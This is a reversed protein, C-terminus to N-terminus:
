KAFDKIRQEEKLSCILVRGDREVVICDELGELVVSSAKPAHVICGKCDYLHVNEGIVANGDQDHPLLTWLSGWTGVDSWGFSGPITFIYDAKEMVAYDISIKECAPFIEAVAQAESSTYFSESMLDMKAALEPVFRRMSDVITSVNWVFIGANWLYGGDELYQKAVDLSPKERFSLVPQIRGDAFDEGSCQIYGYGTEPRTPSIGVTVIRQGHATFDLAESIVGRFEDNDIVLADSPTVVINASPDKMRIKWCAYAICPATNRACPEALINEDPIEPLQTRVIDVYSASTVVWFNEIPCLPAFREVTMQIMTKGTGMVDIFQKPCEPTSMPWFRSGVGGAMIVVHNAM